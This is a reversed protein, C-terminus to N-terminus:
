FCFAASVRVVHWRMTSVGAVPEEVRATPKTTSGLFQYGVSLISNPSMRFALTAYGAYAMGAQTDSRGEGTGYPYGSWGYGYDVELTQVDLGCKAGLQLSMRRTIPQTYRYGAMLMFSSRDYSDTFPYSGHRDYVWYNNTEGGGTWGLSLTLAQRPTISYAGELEGTVVDPAYKSNPVARFGYGLSLGVAYRHPPPLMGPAGSHAPAAPAHRYAAPAPQQQSYPARRGRYAPNPVPGGAEASYVYPHDPLQAAALGVMALAISIKKM